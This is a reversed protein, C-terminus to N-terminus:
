IAGSLPAQDQYFQKMEQVAKSLLAREAQSLFPNWVDFILIARPVGSDNWAEHEISDDFVWATGPQWERTESGVRFRCGEPVVLPVHTIVRTNTVGTHPPIHSKADLISFFATPAYGPVDHMPLQKLVEATRPCRELHEHQPVGDRWLYFVSWKRSHNLEAWQDLPIGKPHKVYPELQDADEAFVREFEARIDATAAEVAPLWAFMERPYFELAPVKPYYLFTPRPTYIRRRNLVTDICHDFRSQDEAAYEQRLEHLKAALHDALAADNANTVEIARQVMARLPGPLPTSASITQLANNYTKAAAKANGQREQLAGKHLLAALHRPEIELVRQLARMEDDVLGLGRLAAALNMWLRANEPEQAVARELLSRAEAWNARQMESVATANLIAPHEPAANRVRAMLAEAQPRNGSQLAQEAQQIWTQVETPYRQTQTM